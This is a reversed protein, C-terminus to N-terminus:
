EAEGRLREADKPMCLDQLRKNWGPGLDGFVIEGVEPLDPNEVLPRGLFTPQRPKSIGGGRSSRGGVTPVFPAVIAAGLIRVFGGRKM